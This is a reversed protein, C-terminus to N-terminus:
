ATGGPMPHKARIGRKEGALDNVIVLRDVRRRLL